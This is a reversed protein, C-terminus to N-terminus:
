NSAVIKVPSKNVLTKPVILQPVQEANFESRAIRQVQPKIFSYLGQIDVSGDSNAADGKLGQLIFHTFLGHKKAKYSLSITNGSTSSLVIIKNNNAAAQQQSAMVLPKAGSQLVSRDGVGTFCADLMVVVEKAPLAELMQYLSKLSFGTQEIFTPDGDYPVLYGDGSDTKPTGHGSFYVILSSSSDINNRLWPKLYKEMDSKTAQENTRLIVNQEHYGANNVLFSAIDKADRAAFEANPLRERYKEIGIVVAFRKSDKTMNAMKATVATPTADSVSEPTYGALDKVAREVSQFTANRVSRLDMEKDGEKANAPAGIAKTVSKETSTSLLRGTRSDRVTTELSMSREGSGIPAYVCGWTLPVCLVYLPNLGGKSHWETFKMGMILDVGYQDYIDQPASYRTDPPLLIVSSFMTGTLKSVMNEERSYFLDRIGDSNLQLGVKAPVPRDPAILTHEPTTELSMCGHLFVCIFLLSLSYKAKKMVGEKFSQMNFYYLM